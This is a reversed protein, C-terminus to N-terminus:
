KWYEKMNRKALAARVSAARAALHTDGPHRKMLKDLIKLADEEHHGNVCCDVVELLLREDRPDKKAANLFVQAAEKWHGGKKLCVAFNNVAAQDNPFVELRNEYCKMAGNVNGIALLRRGQLDLTDALNRLLPDTPNAKATAAWLPLANTAAAGGAEALDFAVVIDRRARQLNDVRDAFEFFVRADTEGRTFWALDPVEEPMFFGPRVQARGGTPEPRFALRLPLVASLFADSASVGAFVPAATKEDGVYCAFVDAPAYYGAAAFDEYRKAFAALFADSRVTDDTGTGGRKAIFVYDWRGICWLRYGGKDSFDVHLRKMEALSRFRADFPAAAHGPFLAPLLTKLATTAGYRTVGFEDAGEPERSLLGACARAAAVRCWPYCVTAASLGLFKAYSRNPNMQLYKWAHELAPTAFPCSAGWALLAAAFIWLAKGHRPPPASPAEAPIRRLLDAACRATAGLRRTVAATARAGLARAAEPEAFLRLLAARVAAARAAPDPADPTQVLADAALLDSMVPRFNETYPGVVTPVGCLCPEIMNQSGHECLSKGVFAVAAIGFLGMMEGTTDCLFVEPVAPAAAPREGRSRRVCAFGAARIAAEVADAKEFHRPAIVLKVDPRTTRLEAYTELLVADEGPWTSGGLLVDGAGIWARLEAEKAPDRRAVDFKFSGTVQVTAPDAGAAVLRAADLDSQASIGTFARLVDGFFWRLKRYRPASRDSVRANVLFVPVRRRALARIFNPWIETETLIVARPRIRDLARRVCGNFDLPNYILVDEIGGCRSRELEREATKWGTSSTTSFVFRVSPDCARLARMLQGAVQVEGVSVAHIWIPAAGAFARRVDEPYRGFRDGMRARYGGRRKMRLLFSPMMALYAVAFLCNYVFWKVSTM